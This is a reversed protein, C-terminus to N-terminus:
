GPEGAGRAYGSRICDLLEDPEFPKALYSGVGARLARARTAEEPFATVLVTPVPTGSAVLQRYLDLGGMGPMRVDAILCATRAAEGSNLFEAASRFGSATFGMARVLSVAAERASDDDDVVAILLNASM